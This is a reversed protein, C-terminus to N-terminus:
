GPRLVFDFVVRPPPEGAVAPPDDAVAEARRALDAPDLGLLRGTEGGPPAGDTRGGAAAERFLRAARRALRAAGRRNAPADGSRLRFGAGALCILGQLLAREPGGRPATRWLGEWVEHAEWYYGHNFLDLGWLAEREADRPANADVGGLGHGGPDRLPHPHRGPRYAYPPLPRGPALRPAERGGAPATERETPDDAM